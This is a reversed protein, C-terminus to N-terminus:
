IQNASLHEIRQIAGHCFNQLKYQLRNEAINTRMDLM